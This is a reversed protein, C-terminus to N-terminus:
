NLSGVHDTEEAQQRRGPLLTLFIRLACNEFDNLYEAQAQASREPTPYSCTWPFNNPKVPSFAISMYGSVSINKPMLDIEVPFSIQIFQCRQTYRVNMEKGHNEICNWWYFNNRLTSGAVEM